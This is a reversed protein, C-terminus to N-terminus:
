LPLFRWKLITWVIRLGHHWHIKKGEEYSRPHYAIPVEIVRRGLRLLKCVLENDYEFGDAEIPLGAVVERRFAKYAGEYDTADHGYLLNTLAIITLNGIYHAFFPSRREGFFFHPREYAFRSGLVADARGELIPAIVARCDGPDYELDADQILVIRGAAAAFGTKVAAGKGRNVPHSLHTIGDLSELVAGTGDSSGDDVVIIERELGGLDAARVRAVVEAIHVAENYCPIVISVRSASPTSSTGPKAGADAGSEFGPM